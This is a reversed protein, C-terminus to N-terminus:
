CKQFKGLGKEYISIFLYIFEILNYFIVQAHKQM